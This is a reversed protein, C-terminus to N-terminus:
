TEGKTLGDVQRSLGQEQWRATTGVAGTTSLQFPRISGVFGFAAPLASGAIAAAGLLAGASSRM